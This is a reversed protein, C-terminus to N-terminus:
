SKTKTLLSRPPSNESMDPEIGRWNRTALTDKRTGILLVNYFGNTNACIVVCQQDETVEGYANGFHRVPSVWVMDNKNLYKYYDPLEIINKCNEVSVQWRYINDGETPSEVFSHVLDKTETKAPDPHPIIFSGSSKSLSGIISVDGYLSIDNVLNNGIIVCNSQGTINTTGGGTTGAKWGLLTVNDATTLNYGACFGVITNCFASTSASHALSGVVTNESGTTCQSAMVGVAVNNSM